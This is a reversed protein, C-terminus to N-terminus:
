APDPSASDQALERAVQILIQRRAPTMAAFYSTLAAGGRLAGIEIRRATADSMKEPPFFETVSLDLAEAARTLMSASVRNDGREYKQIQQFSVNLAEGLDTQSMKRALREARLRQGIYIDIPDAVPIARPM